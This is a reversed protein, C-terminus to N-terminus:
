PTMALRTARNSGMQERLAEILEERKGDIDGTLDIRQEGGGGAQAQLVASRDVLMGMLKGQALVANVEAGPQRCTMALDFIVDLKTLLTELDRTKSLGLAKNCINQVQTNIAAEQRAAADLRKKGEARRREIRKRDEPSPRPM